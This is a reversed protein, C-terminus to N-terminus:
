KTPRFWKPLGKKKSKDHEDKKKSKDENLKGTDDDDDLQGRQQELKVTSLEQLSKTHMNSILYPGRSRKVLPEWILLMKEDQFEGHDKLATNNETFGMKIEKFPPTGSKLRYNNIHSKEIYGDLKKLLQGLNIGSDEIVLQLIALDPFRIRIVYKQPASKPQKTEKRNTQMAKIMGYYKEAQSVTLNYDSDPNEYAVSSGSPLYVTDTEAEQEPSEEKPFKQKEPSEEKPSERNEEATSTDMKPSSERSDDLKPLKPSRSGSEGQEHQVHDDTQGGNIREEDQKMEKELIRMQKKREEMRKRLAEQEKQLVERRAHNEKLEIDLRMVVNAALGVLSGVTITAFDHNMNDVHADLVGLQVKNQEYDISIDVANAFQNLVADITSSTHSKVIKQLLKGKVSAVLKLAVDREGNVIKLTLKANNVLNTLRLPLLGDLEKNNHLVIGQTSQPLRFKELSQQVLQNVTSTRSCTVKKPIGNHTVSFLLSM